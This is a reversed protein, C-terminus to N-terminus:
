YVYKEFMKPKRFMQVSNIKTFHEFDTTALEKAEDITKATKVHFENSEFNVTKELIALGAFRILIVPTMNVLHDPQRDL